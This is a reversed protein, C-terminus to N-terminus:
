PKDPSWSMPRRELERKARARRRSHIASIKQWQDARIHRQAFPYFLEEEAIFHGREHSIYAQAAGRLELGYEPAGPNAKQIVAALMKGRRDCERHDAAVPYIDDSFQPMRELLSYYILEEVDQHFSKAHKVLYWVLEEMRKGDPSEASRAAVQREIELFAREFKVHDDRLTALVSDGMEGGGLFKAVKHSITRPFCQDRDLNRGIESFWGM